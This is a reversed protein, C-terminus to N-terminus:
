EKVFVLSSSGEENYIYLHNGVVKLIEASNLADVFDAEEKHNQCLKRTMAMNKFDAKCNELDEKKFTTNLRNCGTFGSFRKEKVDFTVFPTQENNEVAKGNMETLMWQGEIDKVDMKRPALSVLEKDENDTLVMGETTKKIKAAQNLAQLFPQEYKADLCMKMTSVVNEAKFTDGSLKLSGNIRNCGTYGYLHNGDFSLYPSVPSPLVAEGGLKTVDWEQATKEPNFTSCSALTSVTIVGATLLKNLRM